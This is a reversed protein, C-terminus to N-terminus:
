TERITIGYVKKMWQRKRKYADTRFGKCDEIVLHGGEYYTFDATYSVKRRFPKSSGHIPVLDPHPELTMLFSFKTQRQLASISGLQLMVKLELWRKHERKSDFVGDPTEVKKNNFKGRKPGKPRFRPM